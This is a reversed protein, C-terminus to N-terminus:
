KVLKAAQSIGEKDIDAQHWHGCMCGKIGCFHRELRTRQYPTLSEDILQKASIQGEAYDRLAENTFNLILNIAKSNHFGGSFTVKTKM